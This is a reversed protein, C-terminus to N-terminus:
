VRRLYTRAAVAPQDYVGCQVRHKDDLEPGDPLLQDGAAGLPEGDDERDEHSQPEDVVKVCAVTAPLNDEDCGNTRSGGSAVRRQQFYRCSLDGQMQGQM